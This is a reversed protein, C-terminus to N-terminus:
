VQSYWSYQLSCKGVFGRFSTSSIRSLISRLKTVKVKAKYMTTFHLGSCIYFSYFLTGYTKYFTPLISFTLLTSFTYLFHLTSSMPGSCCYGRDTPRRKRGCVLLYKAKRRGKYRWVWCKQGRQKLLCAKERVICINPCAQQLGGFSRFQRVSNITATGGIGLVPLFGQFSSSFSPVQPFWSISHLPSLFFLFIYIRFLCNLDHKLLYTKFLLHGVFSM